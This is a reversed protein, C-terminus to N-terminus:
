VTKGCKQCQVSANCVVYIFMYAVSTFTYTLLDILVAMPICCFFEIREKHRVVTKKKGAGSDDHM